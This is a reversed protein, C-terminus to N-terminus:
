PQLRKNILWNKLKSNTITKFMLNYDNWIKFKSVDMGLKDCYFLVEAVEDGEIARKAKNLADFKSIPSMIPYLQDVWVLKGLQTYQADNQVIWIAAQFVTYRVEEINLIEIIKKLNGELQHNVIEYKSDSDPLYKEIDTSAINLPTIVIQDSILKINYEKTVLLNTIKRNKSEFLTGIPIKVTTPIEVQDLKYMELHVKKITIHNITVKIRDSDILDVINEGDRIKILNSKAEDIRVHDPYNIIFNNISYIDGGWFHKYYINDDNRLITIQENAQGIYRGKPQNDIYHKYSLITNTKSAENWYFTDIASLAAQTYKGNKNYKLYKEYSKISNKDVLSWHIQDKAKPYIIILSIGLLFTFFIIIVKKM